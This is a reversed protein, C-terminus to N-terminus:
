LGVTAADSRSSDVHVRVSASTGGGDPCLAWLGYELELEVRGDEASARSREEFVYYSGDESALLPVCVSVSAAQTEVVVRSGSEVAGEPVGSIEFVAKEDAHCSSCDEGAEIVQHGGSCGALPVAALSALVLASAGRLSFARM